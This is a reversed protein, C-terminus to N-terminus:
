SLAPEVAGKLIIGALHDEFQAHATATLRFLSTPTDAGQAEVEILQDHQMARVWRAASGQPVNAARALTGLDLVAGEAEALYAALMMDWAPDAFIATAFVSRREQRSSLLLRACELLKAPNMGDAPSAIPVITSVLMPAADGLAIISVTNTVWVPSGDAKIFRKTVRFPERTARLNRMLTQCTLRDAPVTVDLVGRGLLADAETELITCFGEDTSLIEGRAGLLAHGVQVM